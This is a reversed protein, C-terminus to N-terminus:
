TRLLIALKEAARNMSNIKLQFPIPFITRLHLFGGQFAFVAERM